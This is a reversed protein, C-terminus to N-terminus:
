ETRLIIHVGSDTSIIDSMQGVDLAYTAEEFPRQMQGRGFPGLDGGRAHSSCDSHAQALKAFTEPDGKIETQYGLLINIAEEKTRTINDEKWSSPRRSDRHKVLLHSARVQDNKQKLLEKGPVTDADVDPPTDWSSQKTDKNFFYPMGKSQSM